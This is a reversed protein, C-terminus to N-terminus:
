AICRQLNAPARTWIMTESFLKTGAYGLVKLRDNALPTLEVDFKEKEEPDYIWGGDWRGGKMPKVDGIIQLGCAKGNKGDKFWVLRGCLRGSCDTIEVAGRGTHDLWVGTPAAPPAQAAALPAIFLSAAAVCLGLSRSMRTM